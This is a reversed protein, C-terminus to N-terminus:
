EPKNVLQIEFCLPSYGPISSGSGSSGYGLGSYFIGVGREQARMKTLIRAFGEKVSSNDSGMKIDSWSSGYTISVPSYTRSSSYIGHYIATDRITTDFVMGNLLRGTYNIYVTTDSLEDSIVPGSLRVYYFGHAGASDARATVPNSGFQSPFNRVLYRSISDIEWEKTSRFKDTLRVDYVAPSNSTSDNLYKEPSDYRKYTLIWGPIAAMRRGGVRMGKLLEEIGAYSGGYYLVTPGYYSAESYTGLQQAVKELTTATITGSTNRITYDVSVYLTDEDGTIIDGNGIEEELLWSGLETQKWLYEPHQEKQVHIWADFSLKDAEHKATAVTRGCSVLCLLASAIILIRKM